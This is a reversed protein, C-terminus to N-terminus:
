AGQNPDATNRLHLRFFRLQDYLLRLRLMKIYSLEMLKLCLELGHPAPLLCCSVADDIPLVTESSVSAKYRM